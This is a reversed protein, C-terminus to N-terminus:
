SRAITSCGEAASRGSGRILQAGDQRSCGEENQGRVSVLRGNSRETSGSGVAVSQLGTRVDGRGGVSRLSLEDM